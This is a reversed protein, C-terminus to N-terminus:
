MPTIGRSLDNAYYGQMFVGGMKIKSEAEKQECVKQV